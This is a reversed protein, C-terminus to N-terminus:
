LRELVRRAHAIAEEGYASEGISADFAWTPKIVFGRKGDDKTWIKIGKGMSIGWATINEYKIKKVDSAYIKKMRFGAFCTTIYDDGVELKFSVPVITLAIGIVWFMALGLLREIPVPAGEIILPLTLGFFLIALVFLGGGMASLKPKYITANGKRIVRRRLRRKTTAPTSQSPAVWTDRGFDYTGVGPGFNYTGVFKGTGTNGVGLAKAAGQSSNSFNFGGVLQSTYTSIGGVGLRAASQLTHQGFFFADTLLKPNAGRVKPVIEGFGFTLAGIVADTIVSQATIKDGLWANGGAGVAGSVGGAIASQGVLGVSTLYTSAAGGTAGIIAGQFARTLYTQPPSLNSYFASASFGNSQVNNYVDYGYQGALGAGAGIIALGCTPCRGNPDKGTIPNDNAYGYSNLAQPNSLAAKGDQTLGIEWFVPDQSIFQGRASEYYRANLYDRGIPTKPL